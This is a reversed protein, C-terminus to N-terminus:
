SITFIHQRLLLLAKYICISKFSLPQDLSAPIKQGTFCITELKRPSSTSPIVVPEQGLVLAQGRTVHGSVHGLSIVPHCTSRDHSVCIVVDGLIMESTVMRWLSAGASVSEGSVIIVSVLTFHLM